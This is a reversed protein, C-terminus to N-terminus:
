LAGEALTPVGGNDIFAVEITAGRHDRIAKCLDMYETQSYNRDSESMNDFYRKVARLAEEQRGSEMEEVYEMSDYEQDMDNCSCGAASYWRFIRSANDWFVDLQEWEYGGTGIEGLRDYEDIKRAARM